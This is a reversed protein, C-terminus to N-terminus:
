REKAETLHRRCVPRGHSPHVHGLRWCGRTECNHHKAWTALAILISVEGLDSGIGSWLQYGNGHMPHLLYTSIATQLWHIM